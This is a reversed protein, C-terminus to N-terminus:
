QCLDIEHHRPQYKIKCCPALISLHFPASKPLSIQLFINITESSIQLSRAIEWTNLHLQTFYRTFQRGEWDFGCVVVFKIKNKEKEKLIKEANMAVPTGNKHLRGKDQQIKSTIEPSIHVQTYIYKEKQTLICQMCIPKQDHNLSRASHKQHYFNPDSGFQNLQFIFSPYRKCETILRQDIPM